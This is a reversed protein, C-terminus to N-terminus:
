HKTTKKNDVIHDIKTFIVKQIHHMMYNLVSTLIHIAQLKINIQSPTPSHEINVIPM